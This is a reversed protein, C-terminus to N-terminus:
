PKPIEEMMKHFWIVKGVDGDAFYQAKNLIHLQQISLYLTTCVKV